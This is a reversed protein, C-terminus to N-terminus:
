IIVKFVGEETLDNLEVDVIKNILETNKQTKVRIYNETFGYIFGKQIDSEFLVKRKTGINQTYFLHKKNDSLMQLKRSRDRRINMPIKNGLMISKTNPRESYTFVHLYSVPLSDIFTYTDDFYDDTEGPFGVIVDAAICAFPMMEQIKFVREAFLERNYHRKMLKLIINNGSQLPIHFHPLFRESGAVFGIIVDTLLDPEISSIRFREIDKVKDLEKILQYFSQNNNKGFDGINVGTLVIEKISSKAIDHVSKVTNEITDSRSRGRALPIACYSCFYDCGDQIKLFSRTRDGLSYSPIFNKTKSVPVFNFGNCSKDITNEENKILEVIRNKDSNGIIYNVEEMENLESAKLESFCGIVAIKIDPNRSKVSRIATKCKKEAISTVTCSNIVYYDATEKNDVIEFGEDAFQRAIQSTEAFNLKCGFTQFAIKKRM